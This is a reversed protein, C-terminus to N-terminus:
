ARKAGDPGACWTRGDLTAIWHAELSPDLGQPANLPGLETATSIAKVLADALTAADILGLRCPGTDSKTFLAYRM